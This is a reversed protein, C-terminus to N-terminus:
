CEHKTRFVLEYLDPRQGVGCRHGFANQVLVTEDLTVSYVYYLERGIRHRVVDGVKFPCPEVVLKLDTEYWWTPNNDVQYIPIEDRSGAGTPDGSGIHSTNTVRMYVSGNMLFRVTDGINFKTM